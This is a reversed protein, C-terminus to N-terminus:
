SAAQWGVPPRDTNLHQLVERTIVCNRIHYLRTVYERESLPDPNQFHKLALDNLPYVLMAWTEPWYFALLFPLEARDSLDKLARYTPHELNPQRAHYHKYEVTAAAKGTHYEVMLFDMDVAPCNFGWARHRKSIEEDRWGSREQRVPRADPTLFSFQQPM